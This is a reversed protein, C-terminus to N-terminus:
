ASARQFRTADVSLHEFQEAIERPPLARPGMPRQAFTASEGRIAIAADVEEFVFEDRTELRELRRASVEALFMRGEAVVVARQSGRAEALDLARGIQALTAPELTAGDALELTRSSELEGDRALSLLELFGGGDTADAVSARGRAASAGTPRVAPELRRLLQRPDITM